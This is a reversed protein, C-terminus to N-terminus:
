VREADGVAVLSWRDENRHSAHKLMWGSAHLMTEIRARQRDPVISIEATVNVPEGERTANIRGNILRAVHDLALADAEDFAPRRETPRLIPRIVTM